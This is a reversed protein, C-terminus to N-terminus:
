KSGGSESVVHGTLNGDREELATLIEAVKEGSINLAQQIDAVKRRASRGGGAERERLAQILAATGAKQAEAQTTAPREAGAEARERDERKRAIRAQTAANEAVEAHTSRERELETATDGMLQRSVYSALGIGSFMARIPEPISNWAASISRGFNIVADVLSKFYMAVRIAYNAISSLAPTVTRIIRATLSMVQVFKTMVEVAVRVGDALDRGFNQGIGKVSNPDLSNVGEVVSGPGHGFLLGVEYILQQLATRFEGWLPGMTDWSASFAEAVGSFFEQARHGFDYLTGVFDRIGANEARNFEDQLEGSLHGESFLAVLSRWALSIRSTYYETWDRLGGLNEEWAKRVLFAMGALVGMAAIVPLMMLVIGATVAAVILLMEGLVVILLAVSGVVVGILGSFVLLVGGLLTIVGLILRGQEPIAMWVRIFRNLAETVVLVMPRFIKAFTLGVTTQLTEVTGQLLTMQGSFTSLIQERFSEATGTANELNGQLVDIAESGRLIAREGDRMVETQAQAVSNFALIGRVGFIKTNISARDEDTMDRTARAVDEMVDLASRAAGTEEDYASVGIRRLETMSQQDSMVRRTAERFATSAVSAEINANRMLGLTVLVDNLSTGYQAGAAAARSLGVQFDRAQFNSMQTTRLLRDTVSAAETAEMGYANLTGVVAEASQAVGLQGLSGAALDLVPNLTAIANNANQGAAALSQLGEAAQQPSFQTAIGAQIAAGQLQELEGATARSIAGVSVMTQEFEGAVEALRFAGRLTELGATLAAAGGAILGFAGTMVAAGRGVGSVLSNFNRGMMRMPGSAMDRANVVIGLGMTTNMGGAAAM